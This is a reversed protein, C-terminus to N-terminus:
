LLTALGHLLVDVSVQVLLVAQFVQDDFPEDRENIANLCMLIVVVVHAEKTLYEFILAILFKSKYLHM